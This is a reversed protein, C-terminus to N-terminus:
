SGFRPSRILRLSAPYQLPRNFKLCYIQLITHSALWLINESVLYSERSPYAIELFSIRLQDASHQVHLHTSLPSTNVTTTIVRKEICREECALTRLCVLYDVGGCHTSFDIYSLPVHTHYLRQAVRRKVRQDQSAAQFIDAELWNRNSVHCASM